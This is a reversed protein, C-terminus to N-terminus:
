VVPRSPTDATMEEGFRLSRISQVVLTFSTLRSPGRLLLVCRSSRYAFM